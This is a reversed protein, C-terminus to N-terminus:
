RRNLFSKRDLYSEVNIALIMLLIGDFALFFRAFFFNPVISFLLMFLGLLTLYDFRNLM